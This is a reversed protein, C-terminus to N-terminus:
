SKGKLAAMAREAAWYWVNVTGSRVRQTSMSRPPALILRSARTSTLSVQLRRRGSPVRKTKQRSSGLSSMEAKVRMM